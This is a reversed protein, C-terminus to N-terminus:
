RVRTSSEKLYSVQSFRTRLAPKLRNTATSLGLRIRSGSARVVFAHSGSFAAFLILGAAVGESYPGFDRERRLPASYSAGGILVNAANCTAIGFVWSCRRPM